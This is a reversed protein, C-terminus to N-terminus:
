GKPPQVAARLRELETTSLVSLQVKGAEAAQKAARHAEAKQEHFRKKEEPTALRATGDVVMKAAMRPVVETITGPQGGDVTELSVVVGFPDSIRSEMDRIKQYYHKLDM